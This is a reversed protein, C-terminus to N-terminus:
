TTGNVHRLIYRWLEAAGSEDSISELYATLRSFLEPDYINSM